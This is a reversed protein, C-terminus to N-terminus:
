VKLDTESVIKDLSLSEWMKRLNERHEGWYKHLPCPNEDGCKEFGLICQSYSEFGEVAQIIQSLFISNLDNIIKYGGKKGHTSEVFGNEALKLMLRGIYKYPIELKDSLETVSIVEDKRIALYILIRIAYESTKYLRM